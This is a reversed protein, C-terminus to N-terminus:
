RARALRPIGQIRISAVLYLSQDLRRVELENFDESIELHRSIAALMDRKLAEVVDPGLLDHRDRSIASQLRDRAISKTADPNDRRDTRSRPRRLKSLM